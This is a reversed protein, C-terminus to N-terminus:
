DERLQFGNKVRRLNQEQKGYEAEQVWRHGKLQKERIKIIGTEKSQRARLKATTHLAQKGLKESQICPSFIVKSPAQKLSQTLFYASSFM